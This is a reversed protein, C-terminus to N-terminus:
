WAFALGSYQRSYIGAPPGERYLISLLERSAEVNGLLALEAACKCLLSEIQSLDREQRIQSPLYDLVM